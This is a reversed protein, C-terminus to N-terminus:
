GAYLPSVASLHHLFRQYHGAHLPVHRPDPTASLADDFRVHADVTAALSDAGGHGRQAAWLAQLAAGFAAGEAQAPVKVPLNFVDAVLQRWAASHSGGGTLLV